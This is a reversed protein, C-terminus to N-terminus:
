YIKGVEDSWGPSPEPKQPYRQQYCRQQYLQAAKDTPNIELISEFLQLARDCDKQFYVVIAEEFQCKTQMKLAKLDEADGNLVEFVSVANQKGKVRVRDLFRYDYRLPDGVDRLTTESMVIGAGYVKTMSELRAALNVADAIVTSEMRNQDGITGLMLTGTHIGIGSCIPVEGRAQRQQNYLTIQNQIAIAAQVADDPSDPFLAMVADGIYKDIFGRHNRIVPSVYSLYENIFAFNEEPSMDESMATFSRIDVFLITMEREIHDGLHVDVISEQGLFRLFDHPVFRGYASNIRSLRVHTKIRTMLETKSFPKTLYDNAGSEFGEVLDSVQNKATLMVIPLESPSYTQRLKQCVEYGSMQPMMVDLLILDPKDGEEIMRLAELGNTAQTISYNHLSLNNSLVQLNIPEDDVLLVKVKNPNVVEEETMLPPDPPLTAVDNATMRIQAIAEGPKIDTRQLAQDQAIPLDFTFESGEGLVSKVTVDGGHLEVLQKTIALGLGTGGYNRATSGDGQEFSQFITTLKDPPIGIGTDAITIFIHGDLVAARVEVMGVQTFKIANGILNYFIQQLRNEDADALPMEPHIANVLQLEKNGILPRLIGLVTEAVMRVDIAKRQLEISHNQLKSFDLIDNVLNALRRGSLVVMELNLAVPKSIPGAAGDLLSEALGIIGNLPTRLEHSTNALFEDKLRDLRQLSEYQAELTEFSTKLQSAMINFSQALQGVEDSRNMKVTEDWHGRSLERAAENLQLIPHIVWRSTFVGIAIAVILAVLSLLITTRTNADIQAMFDAEPIVVVILWDVGHADQLPMVQVFQRDGNVQFSTQLPQDIGQLQPFQGQLYRATASILPDGSDVAQLLRIQGDNGITQTLPESTSSSLIEGSRNMLFAQGTKGIDLNSLFERFGVPLMVDTACVGLLRPEDEAYIPQSATIMPVASVFDLYVKSWTAQRAEFAAVYWPRSRPDYVGYDQVFDLRSGEADINYHYLHQNTNRNAVWFYTEDPELTDRGVGLLEGRVTSCYVGAVYPALKVQQLFQSANEPDEFNLAGQTFATINLQNIDHPSSLYRQLEAEIRLSLENRLQRAIDDVAKQGNQYSLYGVIGVAAFTQLAFPVILVMRLPIRGSLRSAAKALALVPNRM